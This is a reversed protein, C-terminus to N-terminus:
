CQQIKKTCMYNCTADELPTKSRFGSRVQM